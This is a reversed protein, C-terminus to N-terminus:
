RKALASPSLVFPVITPTSLAVRQLVQRVHQHVGRGIEALVVGAMSPHDVDVMEHHASGQPFDEDTVLRSIELRGDLVARPGDQLILERDLHNLRGRLAEDHTTIVGHEEDVVKITNGQGSAM